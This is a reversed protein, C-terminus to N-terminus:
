HPYFERTCQKKHAAKWHEKQHAISCYWVLRCGSCTKLEVDDSAPKGCAACVAVRRRDKTNSQTEKWYGGVDSDDSNNGEERTVVISQSKKLFPKDFEGPEHEQFPITFQKAGSPVSSASNLADSVRKKTAELDFNSPDFLAPPKGFSKGYNPTALVERKMKNKEFYDADDYKFLFDEYHLSGRLNEGPCMGKGDIVEVAGTSQEVPIIKEIRIVHYWKDGFDYLYGIEDGEKSFLHAFKYREDPLYEYGVQAKHAVDVSRSGQEPGYLSGDRFDTFTYCHLNRVWGMVPAVVKDQLANLSIGASVKFRRWVRPQGRRDNMASITIKCLVDCKDLGNFNHAKLEKKKRDLIVKMFQREPSDMPRYTMQHLMQRMMAQLGDFAPWNRAGPSIPREGRAEEPYEYPYLGWAHIQGLPGPKPRHNRPDEFFIDPLYIGDDGPAFKVFKPRRGPRGKDVPKSLGMSRELDMDDSQLMM